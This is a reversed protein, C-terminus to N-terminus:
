EGIVRPVRKEVMAAVAEVHDTTQHGLAQYAASVELTQSLNLERSRRLLNKAMRVAVPPNGAIEHAVQRAADLLEEAPVVRSVIGWDAATQADIFKGTLALEAARAPGAIQTLLWAGGDGPIIGLKVFSEAFKAYPSAIRVDCMLTLDFGAGVAAGNVAAVFPVECKEMALPLDQIGHKYGERQEFPSGGFMGAREHMAKVDGGASFAKGAGTLVVARVRKDTGIRELNERFADLMDAGSIPNRSEPLNITWTEIHGDPEVLLPPTMTQTREDTNDHNM